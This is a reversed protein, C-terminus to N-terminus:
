EGGARERGSRGRGDGGFFHIQVGSRLFGITFPLLYHSFMDKLSLYGFELDGAVADCCKVYDRSKVLRRFSGRRSTFVAPVMSSYFSEPRNRSLLLFDGTLTTDEMDSSM